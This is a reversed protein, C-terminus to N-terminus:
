NGSDGVFHFVISTMKRGGEPDCFIPKCFQRQQKSHCLLEKKKGKDAMNIKLLLCLKFSPWVPRERPRDTKRYEFDVLMVGGGEMREGSKRMNSFSSGVM